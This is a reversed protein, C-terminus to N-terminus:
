EGFVERKAADVRNGMRGQPVVPEETIFIARFRAALEPEHMLVYSLVSQGDHFEEAMLNELVIAWVRALSKRLDRHEATLLELAREATDARAQEAKVEAQLEAIKAERQSATEM